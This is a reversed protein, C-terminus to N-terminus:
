SLAELTLCSQVKISNVKSREIIDIVNFRCLLALFRGFALINNESRSIDMIHTWLSSNHFDKLNPTATAVYLGM